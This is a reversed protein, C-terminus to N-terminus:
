GADDRLKSAVEARSHAGLKELAHETYHRATFVSLGLARAVEANRRGRALLYAVELERATLGYRARLEATTPEHPALRGVLVLVSAAPGLLEGGLYSAHLRYRAMGTRLERLM